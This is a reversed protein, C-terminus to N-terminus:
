GRDVYAVTAIKEGKAPNTVDGFTTSDSEVWEGDIYNKILPLSM